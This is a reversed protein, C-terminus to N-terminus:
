AQHPEEGEARGIYKWVDDSIPSSTVLRARGTWHTAIPIEKPENAAGADLEAETPWVLSIGGEEKFVPRKRWIIFAGALRCAARVTELANDMWARVQAESAGRCAVTRYVLRTVHVDGQDDKHGDTLEFYAQQPGDTEFVEM